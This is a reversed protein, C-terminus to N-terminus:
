RMRELEEGLATGAYHVNMVLTDPDPAAEPDHLWAEVQRIIALRNRAQDGSFRLARIDAGVDTETQLRELYSVDLAAEQRDQIAQDAWLAILVGLAVILLEGVALRWSGLFRGVLGPNDSHDSM